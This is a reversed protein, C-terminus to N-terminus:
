KIADALERVRYDNKAYVTLPQPFSPHTFTLKAVSENELDVTMSLTLDSLSDDRLFVYEAPQPKLLTRKGILLRGKGLHSVFGIAVPTPYVIDRDLGRKMWMDKDEAYGYLLLLSQDNAFGCRSMMEEKHEDRFRTLTRRATRDSPAPILGLILSLVLLAIGTFYAIGFPRVQFFTLYILPLIAIRAAMTIRGLNFFFLIGHKM